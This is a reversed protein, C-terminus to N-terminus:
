NLTLWMQSALIIKTFDGRRNPHSMLRLNTYDLWGCEEVGFAYSAESEGSEPM